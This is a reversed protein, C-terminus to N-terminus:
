TVLNRSIKASFNSICDRSMAMDGSQPLYERSFDSICDRSMAMDGSQPLNERSFDSPPHQGVSPPGRVTAYFDTQVKKEVERHTNVSRPRVASLPTFTPRVRKEVEWGRVTVDFDQCQSVSKFPSPALSSVNM